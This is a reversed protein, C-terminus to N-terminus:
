LVVFSVFVFDHQFSEVRVKDATNRKALLNNSSIEVSSAEVM